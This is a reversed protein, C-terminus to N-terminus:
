ELPIAEVILIDDQSSREAQYSGLADVERTEHEDAIGGIVLREGPSVRVLTSAGTQRIGGQPDGEQVIPTIELEIQEGVTRPAVALGRRVPVLATTTERMRGGYRGGYYEEVTVPFVEGTWIEGMRGELVVLEAAFRRDRTNGLDRARVEVQSGSREGRGQGRRGGAPLHGIRVDGVRIWGEVELGRAQLATHSSLESRIRYQRPQTDLGRLLELAQALQEPSGRLLVKNSAPDATAIGDPALLPAVLDALEEAPRYQATYLEIRDARAPAALAVLAAGLALARRTGRGPRPGPRRFGLKVVL